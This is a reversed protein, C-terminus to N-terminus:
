RLNTAAHMLADSRMARCHSHQNHRCFGRRSLAKATDLSYFWSWRGMAPNSVARLANVHIDVISDRVGRKFAAQFPQELTQTAYDM